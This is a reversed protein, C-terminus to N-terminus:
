QLYRNTISIKGIPSAKKAGTVRTLNGQHGSITENALIAFGIAEKAEAPIGYDDSMSIKREPMKEVLRRVIEKNRAGGGSLIIEKVEIRSFVYESYSNYISDVTFQTLTSVLDEFSMGRQRSKKYINEALQEGFLEKGTSKPPKKKFYDNGLLELLLPNDIKGRSAIMGSEDYRKKWETHLGIVCDILTNGPGTDFASVDELNRTIVTLNAIGGINQAIRVNDNNHFLIYDILPILPAGEGGSAIDRTRFDGVTTIGTRDAIVDIEGIQLTSSVNGGASPPNHYLTQGHTGILDIDEAKVSNKDIIRLAADAFINGIEFNLDSITKVTCVTQIQRLRRSVYEPYPICIFDILSIHTDSGSGKINVLAADVGDMSTGSMLGIVLKQPKGTIRELWNM